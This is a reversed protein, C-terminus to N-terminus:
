NSYLSMLLWLVCDHAHDTILLSPSWVSLISWVSSLCHCHLLYCYFSQRPHLERIHWVSHSSKHYCNLLCQWWADGASSYVGTDGPGMGECLLVCPEVCELMDIESLRVAATQPRRWGHLQRDSTCPQGSDAVTRKRHGSAAKPVTQWGIDRWSWRESNKRIAELCM